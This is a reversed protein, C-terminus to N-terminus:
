LNFGTDELDNDEDEESDNEDEIEVEKYKGEEEIEYIYVTEGLENTTEFIEIEGEVGNVEYELEYKIGDKEIERKFEYSNDGDEVEVKYEKNEVKIEISIEKEIGNILTEMNFKTEVEGDETETKYTMKITNEGNTAILVMKEEKEDDDGDEVETTVGSSGDVETTPEETTPAETTTESLKNFSLDDFDEDDNDNEEDDDEYLDDDDDDDEYLDDDDDEFKDKDELNNYAQITYEEENIVFIGSIVSTESDVNYYLVYVEEVVTINIMHTYEVRDSAQEEIAAFDTAGNEMFAKLLELYENINELEQEVELDDDALKVSLGSATSDNALNLFNASLYAMSALSEESSLKEQAPTVACATFTIVILGLFIFGLIKKM